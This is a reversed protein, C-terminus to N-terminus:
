PQTQAYILAEELHTIEPWEITAQESSMNGHMQRLLALADEAADELILLRAEYQARKGGALAAGFMFSGSCAIIALIILVITM